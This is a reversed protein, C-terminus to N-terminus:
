RRRNGTRPQQGDQGPQPNLSDLARQVQAADVPLVLPRVARGDVDVDHKGLPVAAQRGDRAEGEYIRLTLEYQGSRSVVLGTRDAPDLWGGGSKGLQNRPFSFGEGKQQDQGGIGEPLGTEGLFVASVRIARVPGALSRVGPLEVLFPVIPDVVVDRTAPTVAVETV